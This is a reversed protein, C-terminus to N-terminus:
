GLQRWHCSWLLNSVWEDSSIYFSTSEKLLVCKDLLLSLIGLLFFRWDQILLIKKELKCIRTRFFFFWFCCDFFLHVHPTHIPLYVYLDKWFWARSLITFNGHKIAVHYSSLCIGQTIELRWTEPIYGKRDSGFSSYFGLLHLFCPFSKLLLHKWLLDCFICCGKWFHSEM